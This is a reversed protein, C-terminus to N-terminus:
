DFNNQFIYKTSPFNKYYDTLCTSYKENDNKFDPFKKNAEVYDLLRKFKEEYKKTIECIYEKTFKEYSQKKKHMHNKALNEIKPCFNRLIERFNIIIFYIYYYISWHKLNKLM